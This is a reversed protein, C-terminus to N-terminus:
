DKLEYPLGFRGIQIFQKEGPPWIRFSEVRTTSPIRHAAVTGLFKGSTAEYFKVDLADEGRQWGFVYDGPALSVEGIKMPSQVVLYHSYKGDASYGATILVVGAVFKGHGNTIGSATRMETEIHEKEVTARAPLLSQLDGPSAARWSAKNSQASMTLATIVFLLLITLRKM